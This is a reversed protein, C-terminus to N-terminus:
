KSLSILSAVGPPVLHTWPSNSKIAERIVTARIPPGSTNTPLTKVKYKQRLVEVKHEEWSSFVRVYQLTEAPIEHYWSSPETLSFPVIIVRERDIKNDTLVSEIFAVRDEYSFPNSESLHRNPNTSEFSRSEPTPNTIAVYIQRHSKVVHLFLELHGLHFPQFRGSLCGPNFDRSKM